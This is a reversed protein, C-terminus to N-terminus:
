KTGPGVQARAGGSFSRVTPTMVDSLLRDLARAAARKGGAPMTLYTHVADAEPRKGDSLRLRVRHWRHIITAKPVGTRNAFEKATLTENTLPWPILLPELRGPARARRDEGIQPIGAAGSKKARHLRSRLTDMLLGTADSAAQLTTYIEDGIAFPARVARPDQRRKFGLAEEPTWGGALRAYVAAYELPPQGGAAREANCDAIAAQISKYLRTKGDPGIASVARANDLGGVSSGGPMDNLGNPTRCDLLGVWHEELARAEDATEARALVRASFCASFTQGLSDVLRLAAMLGRARVPRNRRAQSVHSAIREALTRRTLGVYHRGSALEELAYIIYEGPPAAQTGANGTPARAGASIVPTTTLPCLPDLTDCSM